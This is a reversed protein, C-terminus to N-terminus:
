RRGRRIEDDIDAETIPGHFYDWLGMVMGIGWGGLVWGPWFYGRGSVAWVGVFFANVVVYAVFGGQLNRRKTVQKRAWERDTDVPAELFERQDSM